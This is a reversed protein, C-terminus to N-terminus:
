NKWWYKGYKNKAMGQWKRHLNENIGSPAKLCENWKKIISERQKGYNDCLKQFMALGDSFNAFECGAHYWAGRDEINYGGDLMKWIAKRTMDIQWDEDETSFMHTQQPQPTDILKLPVLKWPTIDTEDDKIMANEDYSLFRKRGIGKAQKDITINFMNSWLKVLYDAYESSHRGDEVLVLAFIGEGSISKSVYFVYPLELLKHKLDEIDIGPNNIGDIDIAIINSYNIIDIDHVKKYPFTGGVMWCPYHKKAAIQNASHYGMARLEYIKDKWRPSMEYLIDSLTLDQQRFNKSKYVVSDILVTHKQNLIEKTKM